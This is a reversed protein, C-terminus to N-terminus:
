FSIGKIVVAQGANTKNDITVDTIHENGDATINYMEAKTFDADSMNWKGDFGNESYAVFIKNDATLPLIIDDGKKIVIGNKQSLDTPM